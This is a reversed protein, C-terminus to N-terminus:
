PFCSIYSPSVPMGRLCTRRRMRWAAAASARTHRPPPRGFHLYDVATVDMLLQFEFEAADRLIWCVSQLHEAAIEYALEDPLSHVRRARDGLQAGISRALTEVPESM